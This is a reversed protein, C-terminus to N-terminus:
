CLGSNNLGLPGHHDLIKHLGLGYVGLGLINFIGKVEQSRQLVNV